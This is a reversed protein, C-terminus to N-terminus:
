ALDSRIGAARTLRVIGIVDWEFHSGKFDIMVSDWDAQGSLM